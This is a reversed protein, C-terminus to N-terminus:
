PWAQGVEVQGASPPSTLPPPPPLDADAAADAAAASTQTVGVVVRKVGTVHRALPPLPLCPPHPRHPPPLIPVAPHLPAPQPGLRRM